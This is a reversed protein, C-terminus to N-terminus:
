RDSYMTQLANIACIVSGIQTSLERNLRVSLKQTPDNVAGNQVYM